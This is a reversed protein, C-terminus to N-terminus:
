LIISLSCQAGTETGTTKM